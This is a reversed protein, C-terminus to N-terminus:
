KKRVPSWAVLRDDTPSRTLNRQGSGDTNMVYIEPNGDRESAFAIKRGDPSWAPAGDHGPNRTLRRENSGDANMVFVETNGICAGGARCSRSGKAFAIKRGDPSWAPGGEYGPSRTLNRQGSGDANVVYVDFNGARKSTFAIMRGDPSWVPASAFAKGRTLRRQNSGDATM